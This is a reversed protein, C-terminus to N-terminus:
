ILGKDKDFVKTMIIASEKPKRYYDRRLGMEQFGLSRYLAIAPYNSERVELSIFETGMAYATLSAMKVLATAVGQRRFKPFVAVNTVFCSECVVYVGIYGAIEEDVLAVYFYATDNTLEDELSKYSWPQSFCEKELEVLTDLHEREMQVLTLNIM